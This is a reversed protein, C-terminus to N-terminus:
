VKKVIESKLSMERIGPLKCGIEHEGAVLRINKGKIGIRAVPTSGKIKLNKIVSIADGYGPV